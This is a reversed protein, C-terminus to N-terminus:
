NTEEASTKAYLSIACLTNNGGIAKMFIYPGYLQNLKDHVGQSDTLLETLFLSTAAAIAWLSMGLLESLLLDKDHLIDLLSTNIYKTIILRILLREKIKEM